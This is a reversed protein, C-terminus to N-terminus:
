KVMKLKVKCKGCVMSGNCPADIFIDNERLVELLNDEKNCEIEKKHSLIKVKVM